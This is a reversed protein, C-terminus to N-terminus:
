DYEVRHGVGFRKWKTDDRDGSKSCYHFQNTLDEIGVFTGDLKYKALKFSIETSANIDANNFAMKMDIGRDNVVEEADGAYYLWPLTKKWEEQAHYTLLRRQHITSYQKCAASNEDYMSMVCLNALTQCSELSKDSASQFFECLSASRLYYHSHIISNLTFDYGEGDFAGGSAIPRKFAVKSFDDSSITPYREICSQPGISAEGTLIFGEM